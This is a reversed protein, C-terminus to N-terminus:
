RIRERSPLLLLAPDYRFFLIHRTQRVTGQRRTHTRPNPRAPQGIVLESPRRMGGLCCCCCGVVVCSSSSL